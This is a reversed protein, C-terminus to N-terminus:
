ATLNQEVCYITGTEKILIHLISEVYNLLDMVNGEICATDKVFFEEESM